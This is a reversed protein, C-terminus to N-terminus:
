EQEYNKVTFTGSSVQFTLALPVSRKPQQGSPVQCPHEPIGM